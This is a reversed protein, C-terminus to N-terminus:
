GAPSIDPVHPEASAMYYRYDLTVEIEVDENGLAVGQLDVEGGATIEADMTWEGTGNTTTPVLPQEDEGLLAGEESTALVRREGRPVEQIEVSIEESGTTDAEPIRITQETTNGDPHSIVFTVDTDQSRMDTMSSISISVTFTLETLNETELTWSNDDSDGNGTLTTTWPAESDEHQSVEVDYRTVGDSDYWAVGIVSGVVAVVVLAIIVFDVRQM